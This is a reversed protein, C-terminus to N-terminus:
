KINKEINGVFLNLSIDAIQNMLGDVRDDSIAPTIIDTRGGEQFLKTGEEAIKKSIGFAVSEVSKDISLSKSRVWAEINSVPPMKGPRRGKELVYVYSPGSVIVQKDNPMIWKIERSTEGSADQGAAAMNQQIINVTEQGFAELAKQIVGM